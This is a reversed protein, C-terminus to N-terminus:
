ARRPWMKFVQLEGLLRVVVEAFMFLVEVSRLSAFSFSSRSYLNM